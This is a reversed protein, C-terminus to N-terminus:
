RSILLFHFALCRPHSFAIASLLRRKAGAVVECSGFSSGSPGPRFAWTSLQRLSCDRRDSAGSETRLWASPSREMGAFAVTIVSLLGPRCTEALVPPAPTGRLMENPSLPSPVAVTIAAILRIM